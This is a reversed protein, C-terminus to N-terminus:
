SLFNILFEVPDHLVDVLLAHLETSLGVAGDVVHLASVDGAEHLDSLSHELLTHDLGGGPSQKVLRSDFMLCSTMLSLRGSKMKGTCGEVKKFNIVVKGAQNKQFKTYRQM